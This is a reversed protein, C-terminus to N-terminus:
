KTKETVATTVRVQLELMKLFRDSRSGIHTEKKSQYFDYSPSPLIPSSSLFLSHPTPRLHPSPALRTSLIPHVLTHCVTHQITSCMHMGGGGGGGCKITRTSNCKGTGDLSGTSEVISSYVRVRERQGDNSRPRWSALGSWPSERGGTGRLLTFCVTDASMTDTCLSPRLSPAHCYIRYHSNVNM